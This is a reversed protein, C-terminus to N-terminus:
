ATIHLSVDGSPPQSGWSGDPISIVTLHARETPSRRDPPRPCTWIPGAGRNDRGGDYCMHPSRLFQKRSYDRHRVVSVFAHSSEDRQKEEPEGAMRSPCPSWSRMLTAPFWMLCSFRFSIWTGKRSDFPVPTSCRLLSWNVAYTHIFRSTPRNAWSLKYWHELNLALQPNGSLRAM